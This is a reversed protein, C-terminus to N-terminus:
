SGGTCQPRTDLGLDSRGRGVVTRDWRPTMTTTETTRPTTTDPRAIGKAPSSPKAVRLVASAVSSRGSSSSVSDSGCFVVIRAASPLTSAVTKSWFRMLTESSWIERVM